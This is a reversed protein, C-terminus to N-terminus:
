TLLKLETARSLLLSIPLILLNFCTALILFYICSCYETETANTYVILQLIVKKVTLLYSETSTPERSHNPRRYSYSM